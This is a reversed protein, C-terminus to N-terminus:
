YQFKIPNEFEAINHFLDSKVRKIILMINKVTIYCVIQVLIYQYWWWWLYCRRRRRRCYCCCCCCCYLMNTRLLNPYSLTSVWCSVWPVTWASWYCSELANRDLCLNRPMDCAKLDKKVVEVWTLKPMGRGRRVNSDHRLIGSCM